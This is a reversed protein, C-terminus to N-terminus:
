IFLLLLLLLLLLKCFSNEIKIKNKFIIINKTTSKKTSKSLYKNSINIFYLYM